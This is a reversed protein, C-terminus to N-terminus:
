RLRELHFYMKELRKIKKSSRDYIILRSDELQSDMIWAVYNQEFFLNCARWMQTGDGRQEVETFDQDAVVMYNEGFFDGTLVWVRKEYSDWYCGHVHKIKGPPFIFVKEWTLGGDLSRYVPVEQRASNDGYEGFFVTRGELVCISQHLVNRCNQLELTQTLTQSAYDYHYVKGFRIIILNKLDNGVPVVNCKDLRLTRRFLRYRGFIDRNAKPLTVRYSNGDKLSLVHIRNHHSTIFLNEDSYHCIEYQNLQQDLSLQIQPRISYNM